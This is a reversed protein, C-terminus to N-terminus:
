FRCNSFLEVLLAVGYGTAREASHSPYAMDIHLWKGTYSDTLHSEIFHGACSSQANTRCKVSNKMDAVASDFEPLLFEPCYVIPHVLDGCRKGAVIAKSELEDDNCLVAAHRMGTAVGQAGTLTAMDVITHPNLYKVCYHVGDALVLRGEADTNNIEVTRGSFMHHVDDPRTANGAVSNEAVCLLAHLNFNFGKNSLLAARFAGLVGASGGMDRKMGPMFDKGKISLGGTDYTIGKGVWCVSPDEKSGGMHSLIVLAPPDCSAKGVGYIGGFGKEKLEDGRIVTLKAGTESAVKEAEAVIQSVNVDHTPADVLSAALRVGDVIAQVPRVDDDNQLHSDGNSNVPCIMVENAAESASGAKHSFLPRQKAVACSLAVVHDRECVVIAQMNGKPGHKKMLDGVFHCKSPTNHRTFDDSAAAVFVKKRLVSVADGSFRSPALDAVAATWQAENVEEPLSARIASFPLTKICALKGVVFLGGAWQAIPKSLVKVTAMTQINNWVCV